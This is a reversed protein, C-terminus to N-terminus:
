LNIVIFLLFLFTTIYKIMGFRDLRLILNMEGDSMMFGRDCLLVDFLQVSLVCFSRNRQRSKEEKMKAKQEDTYLAAVAKRAEKGKKGKRAEAIKKRLDAPIVATRAKRMEALKPGYTKDLEKIKAKQDETLSERVSGLFQAVSPARRGKKGKGKKKKAEEDAMVSTALVATLMLTFMTRLVLKM